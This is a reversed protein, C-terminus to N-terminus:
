QITFQIELKNRIFYIHVHIYLLPQASLELNKRKPPVLPSICRHSRPCLRHRNTPYHHRRPRISWALNGFTLRYTLLHNKFWNNIQGDNVNLINMKNSMSQEQIYQTVYFNFRHFFVHIKFNRCIVYNYM